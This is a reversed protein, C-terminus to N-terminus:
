PTTLDCNFRINSVAPKGPTDTCKNRIFFINGKITTKIERETIPMSNIWIDHIVLAM